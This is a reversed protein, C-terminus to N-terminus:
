RTLCFLKASGSSNLAQFCLSENYVTLYMPRDDAGVNIDTVKYINGSIDDYAYIKEIGSEHSAVFFLMGDFLIVEKIQDSGFEALNLNSVQKLDGNIDDYSFLKSYGYYNNAKFFLKNNYIILHNPADDNNACDSVQVLAGNNDDYSFIKSVGSFKDAIFFLKNNYVTLHRPYDQNNSNRISSVQRLVGTSDDYSYLKSVGNGNHAPFFLKNNYIVPRQGPNQAFDNNFPFTNSIQTLIGTNDDYSYYKNSPKGAVFFLKNNYIITFQSDIDSDSPNIDNALNVIDAVQNLSGDNDDYRHLEYYTNESRASFFIKNNYVTMFNPRDDGTPHINSIQTIVGTFDDYSMLNQLNFNKRLSLFLKENCVVPYLVDDSGSDAYTNSVQTVTDMSSDYSYLKNITGAINSSFFLKNNYVILKKPDDNSGQNGTTNSIQKVRYKRINLANSYQVNGTEAEPYATLTLNGSEVIDSNRLLFEDQSADLYDFPPLFGIVADINRSFSIDISITTNDFATANISENVSGTGNQGTGTSESGNGTTSIGSGTVTTIVGSSGIGSGTAGLALTANGTTMNQMESMVLLPESSSISISIGTSKSADTIINSCGCILIACISLIYIAQIRKM